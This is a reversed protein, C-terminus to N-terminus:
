YPATSPCIVLGLSSYDETGKNPGPSSAVDLIGVGATLCFVCSCLLGAM